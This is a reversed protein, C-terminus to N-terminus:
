LYASCKSSAHDMEEFISHLEKSHNVVATFSEKSHESVPQLSSIENDDTAISSIDVSRNRSHTRFFSIADVSSVGHEDVMRSIVPIDANGSQDRSNSTAEFSSNTSICPSTIGPPSLNNDPSTSLTIGTNSQVQPILM